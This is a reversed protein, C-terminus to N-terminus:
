VGKETLKFKLSDMVRELQMGRSAKFMIVDGNQITALIEKVLSDYPENAVYFLVLEPVLRSISQIKQGVLFAGDIDSDALLHGIQCHQEDSATGLELHDGIVVFKKGSTKLAQLFELASKTSGLNANYADNIITVGAIEETQLRGELPPLSAFAEAMEDMPVGFRDAVTIAALANSAQHLGSWSLTFVTDRIRFRARNDDAPELMEACVMRDCEEGAREADFGYCVMSTATSDMACVKADDCNIFATGTSPLSNFLSSKESAVGELSGLGELHAPGVNIVLGYNPNAIGCLKAVDGPQNAGMELLVMEIDPHLQLLTLPLGIHNNYNGQSKLLNYRLSLATALLEKTATKGNSGTIAIVPIHFRRRHSKALNHLAKLPDSVAIYAAKQIPPAKKLWNRSVVAAQAGKRFADAVFDHGDAEDKLAWFVEGKKLIRSDICSPGMKGRLNAPKLSCHILAPLEEFFLSM